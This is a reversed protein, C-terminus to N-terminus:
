QQRKELTERWNVSRGAYIARGNDGDTWVALAAKPKKLYWYWRGNADMALWRAWGPADSWLPKDTRESPENM